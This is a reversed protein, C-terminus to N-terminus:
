GQDAEEVATPVITVKRLFAADKTLHMTTAETM